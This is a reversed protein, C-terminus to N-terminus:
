PLNYYELLAIGTASGKGRLIATYAGPGLRTLIASESDNSPALGVTELDAEQRDRWNDNSEILEGNSDYLELVPDAMPNAIGSAALSPGIARVVMRMAENGGAIIFGAIMVNEGTEVLGRVSFNALTANRDFMELLSIGTAGEKGQVVATSANPVSAILASELDHPPAVGSFEISTRQFPDDKWNDNFVSYTADENYLTLTPDPLPDSIGFGALSPGLARLIPAGFFRRETRPILGVLLANDGPHVRLRASVNLLRARNRSFESTNGSADTATANFVVDDDANPFTVSFSANGNGDTTVTEAGLYTQIPRTLSKSDAFFQLTFQSNPTSNLTGQITATGGSSSSSTILPYNQVTNPGFDTDGTDNPTPGEGRLDIGITGNGYIRNSLIRNSVSENPQILVGTDNFAITNGANEGLGGISNDSGNIIVGLYNGLPDIGNAATGILNGQVIIKHTAHFGFPNTGSGIGVGVINGSIVNGSGATTGGLMNDPLGGEGSFWVGTGNAVARSGAADTGVYNGAVINHIDDGLLYVGSEVNASIINRAAPASGGILNGASHVRIGVVNAWPTLGDPEIGIFNGEIISGGPGAVTIGGGVYNNPRGYGFGTIALGRIVCGGAEIVLGNAVSRFDHRRLQILIVANDGVSLTNPSAGPQTYGDITLQDSIAPLSDSEIEIIQVGPGPINFIVRDPGPLVNAELIAQRLSGPGLDQTHIVTFDAAGAARVLLLATALTVLIIKPPKM